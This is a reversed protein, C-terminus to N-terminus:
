KCLVLNFGKGILFPIDDQSFLWCIKGQAENKLIKKLLYFLDNVRFNQSGHNAMFEMLGEEFLNALSLPMKTRAFMIWKQWTLNIERLIKM